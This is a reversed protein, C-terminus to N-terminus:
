GYDKEQNFNLYNTSPKHPNLLQNNLNMSSVCLRRVNLM